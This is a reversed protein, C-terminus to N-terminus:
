SKVNIFAYETASGELRVKDGLGVIAPADVRRGNILVVKGNEPRVSVRGAQWSVSAHSQNGRAGIEGAGAGLYQRGAVLPYARHGCLVHTIPLDNAEDQGSAAGASGREPAPPAVIHPSAPAPLRTVYNLASGSSRIRDIRQRCTRFLCEPALVEAASLSEAFGPLGALRDGLLRFRGDPLERIIQRYVPQLAELIVARPLKVVYTAKQYSIEIASESDRRLARLVDPIQNYLSQETEAHHQPDFRSQQIFLEAILAACSDLILAWGAGDVVRVSARSVEDAVDIQTLVTHHLHLEAHVYAGPEVRSAVAAVASDVLGIAAFPSAEVLGLLLALQENTYHGPVAFVVEDPQGVQEHISLLHAYALDAHHRARATPSSLPDLNLNLWYRNQMARPNLRAKRVAAGGLEIGDKGVIAYGPSRLLIDADRAVRIESDNLEIIAFPAESGM